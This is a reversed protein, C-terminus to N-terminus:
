RSRKRMGFALAGVLMMAGSPPLPVATVTLSSLGATASSINSGDANGIYFSFNSSPDLNSPLQSGDTLLAVANTATAWQTVAELDLTFASDIASATGISTVQAEYLATFQGAVIQAVSTFAPVANYDGINFYLYSQTDTNYAFNGTLTTGPAYANGADVAGTFTADIIEAQATMACTVAAVAAALTLLRKM